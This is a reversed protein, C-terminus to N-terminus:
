AIDRTKPNFISSISGHLAYILLLFLTLIAGPPIWIYYKGTIIYGQTLVEDLLYGLTLYDNQGFGLMAIGAETAIAIAVSIVFTLFTYSLVGPLVETVAVKASGIGSMKSVKIYDREKITLVQARMSRAAWPWYFLAIIVIMQYISREETLAALLLIFPIVPFVLAVNTIFQSITDTTWHIYPGIVGFLVAIGTCILATIFSFIISNSFGRLLLNLNDQGYRNTGMPFAPSPPLRVREIDYYYRSIDNFPPIYTIIIFFITIIIFISLMIIQNRYRNWLTKMGSLFSSDVDEEDIDELKVSDLLLSKTKM